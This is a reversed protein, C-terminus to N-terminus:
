PVSPTAPAEAPKKGITVALMIEHTGTSYNSLNSTIIDYSYGFQFSQKHWYGLMACWADNTRYSAGIWFADRYRALLTLDAKVPVPDVFKVMFSPELKLDDGVPFRYGGMAYYHRDMRSLTGNDTNLFYVKNNLLQPASAGFWYRPAYFLFSFAADPKLEGRLQDDIIPDGQDHFTIKSGDILFQLMGGSVALSLKLDETIRLHYAYSAQVGTRRTPGVIDTFIYGGLGMKSGLPTTGSLTFTRPADQIGVWQYRHGSRLEFFPRSGAVAQNFIYDNFMYQTFQPLQQAHAAIVAAIAVLTSLLHKTRM